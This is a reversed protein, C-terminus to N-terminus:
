IHILSLNTVAPGLYPADKPAVMTERWPATAEYADVEPEDGKARDELDFLARLEDRRTAKFRDSRDEIDLDAGDVLNEDDAAVYEVAAAADDDDDAPPPEDGAAADAEDIREDSEIAWQFVCGDERGASLLGNTEGTLFAVGAVGPSHGAYSAFAAPELCPYPLLDISGFKDGVACIGLSSHPAATIQTM